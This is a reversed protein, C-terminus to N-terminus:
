KKDPDDAGQGLILANKVLSGHGRRLRESVAQHSIDLEDALDDATANRPVQYYGADYALTLTDQQDDTLGFRGKRGDELQYINLIDLSLGNKECYEYTRSLGERDPFIIRLNWDRGDGMAALITGDETVIIQVLTEIQDIWEMQYLWEDELDALLEISEVSSDDELTTEVEERTHEDGSVWVFPMLRDDDHAVVREIECALESLSSFSQSLAFETAPIEVEAVTAVM